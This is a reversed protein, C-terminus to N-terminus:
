SGLNEGGGRESGGVSGSEHSRLLVDATAPTELVRAGWVGSIHQNYPEMMVRMLTWGSQSLAPRPVGQLMVPLLGM